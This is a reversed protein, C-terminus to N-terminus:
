ERWCSMRGERRKRKSLVRGLLYGLAGVGWMLCMRLVRSEGDWGLVWDGGLHIRLETLLSLCQVYLRLM